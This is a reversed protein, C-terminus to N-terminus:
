VVVLKTGAALERFSKVGVLVPSKRKRKVWSAM